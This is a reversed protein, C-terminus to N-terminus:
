KLSSGRFVAHEGYKNRIKKLARDLDVQKQESKVDQFNLQLSDSSVLKSTRIGLLRIPNQNWLEDFLRLSHTYLVDKKNSPTPLQLQHSRIQFDNYKIEVSVM